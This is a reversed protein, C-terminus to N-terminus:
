PSKKQKYKDDKGIEILEAYINKLKSEKVSLELGVKDFLICTSLIARYALQFPNFDLPLDYSKYLSRSGHVLNSRLDYIKSLDSKWRDLDGHYTAITCAIRNCFNKTIDKDSLTVLREMATVLKIIQTNENNDKAAEGFWYFADILRDALCENSNISIAHNALKSIVTGIDSKLDEEFLGWFGKLDENFSYSGEIWYDDNSNAIYHTTDKHFSHNLLIIQDAKYHYSTAFVRIVGYIFNAVSVARHKSLKSSSEPIPIHLLCNFSDENSKLFFRHHNDDNVKAYVSDKHIIKLDRINIEKEPNLGAANFPFFYTIQKRSRRARKHARALLKM